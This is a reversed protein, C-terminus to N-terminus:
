RKDLRRSVRDSVFQVIIVLALLILTTCVTVSTMGRNHGLNYALDGLGGGGVFGAMATYGIMLITTVAIGSVLAPSSEPLLVKFIIHRLSCGMAQAAELVGHDVEKLAIEVLRAYFPSAGIILTPLIATPGLTTGVLFKTFPVLLVLLIIFPIARLTNVALALPRYIGLRDLAQGPSTLFLFVGTTLGILCVVLASVFAMYLTQLTATQLMDWTVNPLLGFFHSNDSLNALSM